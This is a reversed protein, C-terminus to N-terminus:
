PTVAGDGGPAARSRDLDSLDLTGTRDVRLKATGFTGRTFFAGRIGYSVTQQQLVDKLRLVLTANSVHVTADVLVADLREITFSDKVTGSGVKRGDLILDFSGGDLVLPEPNPNTIRLRAVLSTEFVTMESIALDSLTIQPPDLAGMSGCGVAAMVLLVPWLRRMRPAATPRIPTSDIGISSLIM